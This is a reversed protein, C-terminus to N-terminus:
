ARSEMRRVSRAFVGKRSPVVEVLLRSGVELREFDQDEMEDRGIMVELGTRVDRALAHRELVSDVTVSRERVDEEEDGEVRVVLAERRGDENERAIYEVRSGDVLRVMEGTDGVVRTRFFVTGSAGDPEIFGFGRDFRVVKVTGKERLQRSDSRLWSCSGLLAPCDKRDILKGGHVLVYSWDAYRVFNARFSDLATVVVILDNEAEGLDRVRRAARLCRGAANLVTEELRRDVVGRRIEGMGFVVAESFGRVALGPQREEELLTEARRSMLSVLNTAAILRVRGRGGEYASHFLAEASEWNGLFMNVRGLEIQTDVLGLRENAEEAHPLARQPDHCDRVLHESYFYHVRGKSEEPALQLAREYAASARDIQGAFSAVLAEVRDCEFFTPDLARAREILSFASDYKGRRSEKLAQYLLGAAARHSESTMTVTNPGLERQHTAQQRQEEVARVSQARRLVASRTANGIPAFSTFYRRAIETLDFYQILSTLQVDVLSSRQLEHVSYRVDDPALDSLITLDSFSTPAGIVVLVEALTRAGSSLSNIVSEVCFRILEDQNTLLDAPQSGHEVSLVYWRIALPSHRLSEVIKSVIDEPLSALQEVGRRRAITRFLFGAQEPALPGLSVRRELEGIGVRSTFLFRCDALAEIFEVIESGTTSEVNDLVILCRVGELARALQRISGQFNEQLPAVLEASLDFLSDIPERLQRVGSPTLTESKLSTWLIADYPCEPRDILQYLTELVLATKGVGGPGIVTIVQPQPRLLMVLLSAVERGRGILGTEDCEPLPLRHLVRDDNSDRPPLFQAADPNTRLERLISAMAEFQLGSSVIESCVRVVTDVDDPLLPRGHMLRNRVPILQELRPSLSQIASRLDIPLQRSHINLLSIEHGLDLYQLLASSEGQASKDKELRAQALPLFDGLAQETGLVSVVWTELLGRLDADLADVLAYLTPRTLRALPTEVIM